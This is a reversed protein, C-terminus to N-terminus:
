SSSQELSFHKRKFTEQVMVQAGKTLSPRMHTKQICITVEELLSFKLILERAISYVLTEILHITQGSFKEELLEMVEGYDITSKLNELFEEKPAELILSLSVFVTREFQREAQFHGIKLSVPYDAIQIKM